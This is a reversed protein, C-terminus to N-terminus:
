IEIKMIHQVLDDEDSEATTYIGLRVDEELVESLLEKSIKM